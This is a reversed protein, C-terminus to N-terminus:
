RPAAADDGPEGSPPYTVREGDVVAFPTLRHPQLRKASVIECAAVGHVLLADPNQRFAEAAHRFAGPLYYDDSNLWGIIEGTAHPLAKNLAHTQGRDPESISYALHSQYRRIIDPSTDTSGGDILILEKNPYDQALVSQIATELYPGQNYSPMLISIKPADPPM